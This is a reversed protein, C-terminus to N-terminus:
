TYVYAHSLPAGMSGTWILAGRLVLSLNSLCTQRVVVGVAHGVFRVVKEKRPKKWWPASLRGLGGSYAPLGLKFCM